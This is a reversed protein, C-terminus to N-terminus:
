SLALGDTRINVSDILQRVVSHELGSSLALISLIDATDSVEGSAQNRNLIRLMTLVQEVESDGYVTLAHVHPHQQVGVAINIIPAERTDLVCVGTCQVIESPKVFFTTESLYAKIHRLRFMAAVLVAVEEASAALVTTDGTEAVSHSLLNAPSMVDSSAHVHGTRVVLRTGFVAESVTLDLPDQSVLPSVNVVAARIDGNAFVRNSISDLRGGSDPKYPGQEIPRREPELIDLMGSATRVANEGNIFLLRSGDRAKLAQSFKLRVSGVEGM